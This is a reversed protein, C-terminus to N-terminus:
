NSRKCFKGEKYELAATLGDIKTEVVFRSNSIKNDEAKNKCRLFLIKLKM